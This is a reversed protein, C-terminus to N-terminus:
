LKRIKKELRREQKSGKKEGSSRKEVVPDEPPGKKIIVSFEAMLADLESSSDETVKVLNKHGKKQPEEAADLAKRVLKYFDASDIAEVGHLSAYRGWNM